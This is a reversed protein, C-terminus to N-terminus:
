FTVRESFIYKLFKKVKVVRAGIVYNTLRVLGQDRLRM